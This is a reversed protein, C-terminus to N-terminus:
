IEDFNEEVWSDVKARLDDLTGDNYIYHDPATGDMATESPHAQQAGSLNGGFGPRVVRIHTSAFSADRVCEIENKFRVDPILVYDWRGDFDSLLRVAYDVWFNEDRNRVVDTGVYQLLTRGKEDKKGDWGFYQACIFKLLDAYHFILATKGHERLKQRIMGAATDKGHQAKGSILIIKAHKQNTM